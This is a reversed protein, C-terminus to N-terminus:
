LISINVNESGLCIMTNNVVLDFLNYFVLILM